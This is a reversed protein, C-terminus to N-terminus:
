PMHNICNYQRIVNYITKVNKKAEVAIQKIHMGRCYLELILRHKEPINSNHALYHGLSTFFDRILEQNKYGITNTNHSRLNGSPLEIDIFGEQNLKEYWELQLQRLLSRNKLM